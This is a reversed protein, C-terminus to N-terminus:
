VVPNIPAFSNFSIFFVAIISFVALPPITLGFNGRGTLSLLFAISELEAGRQESRRLHERSRARILRSRQLLDRHQRCQVVSVRLNCVGEDEWYQLAAECRLEPPYMVFSRRHRLQRFPWRKSSLLLSRFSHSLLISLVLRQM